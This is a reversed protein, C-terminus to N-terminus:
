VRSSTKLHTSLRPESKRRGRKSFFSGDHRFTSCNEKQDEVIPSLPSRGGKRLNSSYSAYLNPESSRRLIPIRSRSRHKQNGKLGKDGMTTLDQETFKCIELLQPFTRKAQQYVQQSCIELISESEEKKSLIYAAKQLQGESLAMEFLTYNPFQKSRMSLLTKTGFDLVSEAKDFVLQFFNVPCLKSISKQM